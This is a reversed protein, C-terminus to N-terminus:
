IEYKLKLFNIPATLDEKEIQKNYLYYEEDGDPYIFAPGDERHLKGNLWYGIGCPHEAAPGDERHLIGNQYHFKSGDSHIISPYNIRHLQLSENFYSTYNTTKIIFMYTIVIIELKIEQKLSLCTIEM